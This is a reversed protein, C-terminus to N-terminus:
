NKKGSKGRQRTWRDRTLGGLVAALYGAAKMAEDRTLQEIELQLDQPLLERIFVSKDFFKAALM